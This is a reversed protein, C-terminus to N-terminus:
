ELVKQENLWVLGSQIYAPIGYNECEYILNLAFDTKSKGKFELEDETVNDSLEFYERNVNRIAEELSHGCLENEATQFEVHCKGMTKDDTSMDIIDSLKIKSKDDEPLKKKKRYWWKITENSTTEGESVPVSKQVSKGSESIKTSVSDLDTLILCPLGLFKIFPVFKYAYAGGIEILAYYQAPLKYTQSDFLGSKACKNIMDPILLRESAGEVFIAKDAFFLDCKTLTLYKRIFDINEPNEKAFTNLNKYTVGEHTKQAYRIKSFEMANAIHASHSTLFIQIKVRSSKEKPTSGEKIEGEVAEGEAAEDKATKGEVPKEEKATGETIKRLFDELYEAFANQMQPHMHSEPEEIFLLPICAEGNQKMDKAFAALQFEMKILNKYGLGNYTSPLKEDSNGARYSLKTQNKIQDDISLQTTVGLQLEESNPYGFGISSNVVDSLIDDSHKQVDKNAKEVISRLEKMQESVSPDLDEDQMTFFQSILSALSSNQGDDEGLTREAWVICHPFLDQLEKQKKVQKEETNKPNIAYIILEFWKSFSSEVAARSDRDPAFIGGKYFSDKLQERLAKEDIKLRYEARILATTTDVDVDIIFPSLAGLNDEPDDLSYDVLFELSTTNVQKCFDEFSLKEEMFLSIHQFFAERKVLPYDDYTLSRGQLINEICHFCSTKATNNRGVILTTQNDVELEADVLLRYNKIKIKSLQM